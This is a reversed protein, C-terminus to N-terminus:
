DASDFEGGKVGRLFAIWESRGVRLVPGGRDKTDRIPAAQGQETFAVYPLGAASSRTISVPGSGEFVEFM